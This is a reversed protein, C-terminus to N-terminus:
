FLECACSLNSYAGILKVVSNSYCVLFVVCRRQDEVGFNMWGVLLDCRALFLEWGLM